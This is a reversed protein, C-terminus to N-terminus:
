FKRKIIDAALKRITKNVNKQENSSLENYEPHDKVFEELTDASYEKILLGMQKPMDLEGLHSMVNGLRAETIYNGIETIINICTDSLEIQVKEKKIILSLM